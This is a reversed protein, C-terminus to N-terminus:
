NNVGFPCEIAAVTYMDSDLAVVRLPYKGTNKPCYVFDIERSNEPTEIEKRSPTQMYLDLPNGVDGTAAIIHVCGKNAILKTEIDQTGTVTSSPLLVKKCGLNTLRGVQNLVFSTGSRDFLVPPMATPVEPVPPPAPIPTPLSIPPTEQETPARSTTRTINQIFPLVLFLGILFFVTAWGLVKTITDDTIFSRYANLLDSYVNPDVHPAPAQKPAPRTFEFEAKCYECTFRDESFNRPLKLPAACNPCKQERVPGFMADEGYYCDEHRHVAIDNSEISEDTTRPKSLEFRLDAKSV